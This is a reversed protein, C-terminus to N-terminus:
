AQDNRQPSIELRNHHPWLPHRCGIFRGCREQPCRRHLWRLAGLPASWNGFHDVYSWMTFCESDFEGTPLANRNNNDKNINIPIWAVLRKDNENWKLNKRIQTGTNQFRLRPRVRSIFFNDDENIKGNTKWKSVNEAFATSEPWVIDGNHWSQASASLSLLAAVPLLYRKKM